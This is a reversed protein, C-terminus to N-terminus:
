RLSPRGTAVNSCAPSPLPWEAVVNWPSSPPPALRAGSLLGQTARLAGARPRADGETAASASPLPRIPTAALADCKSTATVLMSRM